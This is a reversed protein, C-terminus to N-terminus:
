HRDVEARQRATCSRYRACGAWARDVQPDVVQSLDDGFQQRVIARIARNGHHVARRPRILIPCDAGEIVNGLFHRRFPKSTRCQNHHTPHQGIITETLGRQIPGPM